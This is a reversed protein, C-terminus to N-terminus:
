LERRRLFSLLQRFYVLFLFCTGDFDFRMVTDNVWSAFVKLKAFFFCNLFFLALQALRTIRPDVMKTATKTRSAYPM